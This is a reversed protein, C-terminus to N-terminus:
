GGCRNSTASSRRGACGTRAPSGSAISACRRPSWRSRRASSARAGGLQEHGRADRPVALAVRRPHRDRRGAGPQLRAPGRVRAPRRRDRRDRRPVPHPPRRPHRQDVAARRRPRHQGRRDDGGVGRADGARVGLRGAGGPRRSGAVPVYDYRFFFEDSSPGPQLEVFGYFPAGHRDAVERGRGTWLRYAIARAIQSKGAGPPGILRLFTSQPRTTCTSCRSPSSTSRSATCARRTSGSATPCCSRSAATELELPAAPDPALDGEAAVRDIQSLAATIASM